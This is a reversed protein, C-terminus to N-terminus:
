HVIVSAVGQVQFSQPAGIARVLVKFVHTGLAAGTSNWVYTGNAASYASELNYSGGNVQHYVTFEPATCGTVSTQLTTSTGLAVSAPTAVTTAGTCAPTANLTFTKSIYAQYANESLFPADRVLTQVSWFGLPQNTTNWSFTNSYSWDQLIVFPGTPSKFAFQYQAPGACDSSATWLVSQGPVAFNDADDSVVNAVTCAAYSNITFGLSKYTQYTGSPEDRIWVQISYNGVLAASTQWTYVPNTSWDQVTTWVGSPDLIAFLYQPDGNCTGAATLKVTDGTVAYNKVKDSVLTVASCTSQIESIQLAVDSTGSTAGAALGTDQWASVLRHDPWQNSSLLAPGVQDGSRLAIKGVMPLEPSTTDVLLTNGPGPSWKLERTWLEDATPDGGVASSRWAVLLRDSFATLAPAIQSLTPMSVYPAVTPAIAFSEVQGPYASDLIAAHLRPVNAAGSLSPDTGITFAVALHTADIFALAPRDSEGGPLFPGVTWHTAGSQVEITEQGASGSRWGAAWVGATTALTVDTEVAATAALTLDDSTPTLDKAFTRYRLDPGNVPDSDDVWAVILQGGDFVLDPDRQSFAHEANAIVAPAQTLLTPDMKRLRIGLEDGETDFDTWAAVFTDDPLGTISPNPSDVSADGFPIVGLRQGTSKFMSLELGPPSSAHDVYISAIRNCGLALPHRGLGLEREAPPLAPLMGNPPAHTAVLFPQVTCTSSCADGDLLNGDDCQESGTRFGDGCVAVTPPTGPPQDPICASGNSTGGGGLGANGGSGASGGSGANGAGGVAGTGGGTTAAVQYHNTSTLLPRPELLHGGQGASGATGAAGATGGGGAGGQSAQDCGASTTLALLLL